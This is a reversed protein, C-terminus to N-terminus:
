RGGYVGKEAYKGQYAYNYYPDYYLRGFRRLPQRNMIIGALPAEAKYLLEIARAIARRPTKNSRLVLCVTQIRNLMLLTDSVAHIPACDVVVRDYHLLAEDILGELGSQALLEAPNPSVTGACIYHFKEQEHTQVIEDLGLRGTLYDTVGPLPNRHGLITKQVAPRRLDGDILLTKLGQQALCMSFNLSCFTKGESPLASTFLFTRRHEAKGLMSLSTRLTRFAEAGPSNAQERVVLASQTKLQPVACLVPLHLFEEAQDVTKISSDISNIGLAILVGAVLGALIAKILIGKKDPSVPKQSAIANDIPQVKSPKIERTLMTEKLRNQVSEYLGRTSEVERQLKQYKVVQETLQRSANQQKALEAQLAAHSSVAADFSTRVTQPVKLVANTLTNHWEAIQNVKEIYKPHEAKYRQRLSAFESELRSLTSRAEIVAPDSNVFALVLLSGVNTGLQDVQALDSRVRIVLSNAENVRANLERLTANVIDNKEEVAVSKTQERFQALNAEAKELDGKLRRSETTLFSAADTAASTNQEFSQALYEHVISNALRAAMEPNPHTVTIDIYRAGRRLRATTIRDLVAAVEQMSPEAATGRFSLDKALNNAVAVREFLSRAKFGQEITRLSDLGATRDDSVVKEVKLIKQEEPEVRVTATAAYLVPARQIYGVAGLIAVVLCLLVIWFREVLVHWLMKFDFTGAPATRTPLSDARM